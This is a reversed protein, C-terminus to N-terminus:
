ILTSSGACRAIVMTLALCGAPNQQRRDTHGHDTTQDQRHDTHHQRQEDTGVGDLGSIQCEADFGSKRASACSDGDAQQARPQVVRLSQFADRWRKKLSTLRM